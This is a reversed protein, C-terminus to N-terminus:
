VQEHSEGTEDLAEVHIAYEVDNKAYESMDELHLSSDRVM